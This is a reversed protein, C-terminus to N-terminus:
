NIYGGAKLREELEPTPVFHDHRRPFRKNAEDLSAQMATFKGENVRSLDHVEDADTELNFLLPPGDDFVVLKWPGEYIGSYGRGAHRGRWRTGGMPAQQILIPHTLRPLVDGDLPTSPALGLTALVTPVVDVLQAWGHEVGRRTGRPYRIVLPVRHVPEYPGVAHQLLRHEGLFEGHDSTVIV